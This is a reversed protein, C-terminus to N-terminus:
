ISFYTCEINVIAKVKQISEKVVIQNNKMFNMEKVEILIAMEAVVEVVAERSGKSSEIIEKAVGVDM